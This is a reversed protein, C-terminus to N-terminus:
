PAEDLTTLAIGIGSPIGAITGPTPDPAGVTETGGKPLRQTVGAATGLPIGLAIGLTTGFANGATIGLANGATIGLANGATIGFAPTIGNGSRIGVITGVVIVGVVIGLSRFLM